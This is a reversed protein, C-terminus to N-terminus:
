RACAHSAFLHILRIKANDHRIYQWKANEDIGLKGAEEVTMTGVTFMSRAAGQIAVAGRASESEGTKGGKRFHHVLWVACNAKHAVQGWLAMVFNMEENRNEVAEHSQVFPDVILVSIGRAIIEAVLPELIPSVILAGDSRNAIVLPTDRGSDIFLSHEISSKDIGHHQLAAKIRRRMEEMPDELNFIWV